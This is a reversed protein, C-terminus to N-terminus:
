PSQAHLSKQAQVAEDISMDPVGLDVDCGAFRLQGAVLEPRWQVIGLGTKAYTPDDQQGILILYPAALQVRTLNNNM